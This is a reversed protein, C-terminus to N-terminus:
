EDSGGDKLNANVWKETVDRVRESPGSYAAPTGTDRFRLGVGDWVWHHIEDGDDTYGHHEGGGTYDQVINM